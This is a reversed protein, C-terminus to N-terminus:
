GYEARHYISTYVIVASIVGLYVICGIVQPHPAFSPYFRDHTDFGRLNSVSSVNYRFDATRFLCRM